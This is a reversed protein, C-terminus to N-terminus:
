IGNDCVVAFNDLDLDDYQDIFFGNYKCNWQSLIVINSM